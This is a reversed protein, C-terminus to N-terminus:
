AVVPRDCELYVWIVCDYVCVYMDLTWVIITTLQNESKNESTRKTREKCKRKAPTIQMTLVIILHDCISQLLMRRATPANGLTQRMYWILTKFTMAISIVPSRLTKSMRITRHLDNFLNCCRDLMKLLYERLSHSLYLHSSNTRMEVVLGSSKIQVYGCVYIRWFFISDDSYHMAFTNSREDSLNMNSIAVKANM